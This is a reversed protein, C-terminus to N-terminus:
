SSRTVSPLCRVSDDPTQIGVSRFLGTQKSMRVLNGYVREHDAVEALQALHLHQLNDAIAVPAMTM